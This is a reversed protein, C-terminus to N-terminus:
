LYNVAVVEFNRRGGPTEITVSDGEEEGILGKAIPTNYAIRNNKIDAEAEGVIQYTIEDGNDEDALVVTAGFVIRGDQKLTKPDIIQAHSLTGELHEIRGEIFGQQERAAHYEANEKLDGHARAEAIALIVAPRQVTKLDHLELRLRAEGDVTLPYSTM